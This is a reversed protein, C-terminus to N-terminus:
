GWPAREWAEVAAASVPWIGTVKFITGQEAPPGIRCQTNPGDTTLGLFGRMGRWAICNRMRTLTIKNPLDAESTAYGFFVGRHETTILVPYGAPQETTTM